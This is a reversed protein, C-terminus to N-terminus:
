VDNAALFLSQALKDFFDRYIEPDRIVEVRTQNQNNRVIRAFEIRVNFGAADRSKTSVLTTYIRQDVDYVPKTRALASLIIIAAAGVKSGAERDKSATILGLRTESEDLTFGLDQLLQASAILMAEEDDTEFRKTEQQRRALYQADLRYYGEYPSVCSALPPLLALCLLAPLASPILSPRRKM